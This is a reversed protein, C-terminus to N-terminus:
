YNDLFVKSKITFGDSVLLGPLFVSVVKDNSDAGSKYPEMNDTQFVEGIKPIIWRCKKEIFTMYLHIYLFQKIVFALANTMKEFNDSELQSPIFKLMIFGHAQELVDQNFNMFHGELDGELKSKLETWMTATCYRVIKDIKDNSTEVNCVLNIEFWLKDMYETLHRFETILTNPHFHIKDMVDEEQISSKNSDRRTEKKLQNSIMSIGLLTIEIGQIYIDHCKSQRDTQLVNLSFILKMGELSKKCEELQRRLIIQNKQNEDLGATKKTTNITQTVPPLISPKPALKIEEPQQVNIKSTKKEKKNITVLPAVLFSGTSKYGPFICNVVTISLTDQYNENSYNFYENEFVMYDIRNYPTNEAPFIFSATVRDLNIRLTDCVICLGEKIHKNIWEITNFSLQTNGTIQTELLDKFHKLTLSFINRAENCLLTIDPFWKHGLDTDMDKTVGKLMSKTWNRSHVLEFAYKFLSSAFLMTLSGAAYKVKPELTHFNKEEDILHRGFSKFYEANSYHKNAVDVITKKFVEVKKLIVKSKVIYSYGGRFPQVYAPFVCDQIIYNKDDDINLPKVFSPSWIVQSTPDYGMGSVPFVFQGQRNEISALIFIDNMEQVRKKIDLFIDEATNRFDVDFVGGLYIEIMDLSNNKKEFLASFIIKCIMEVVKVLSIQAMYKRDDLFKQLKITLALCDVSWQLYKFPVQNPDDPKILATM